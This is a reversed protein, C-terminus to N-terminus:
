LPREPSTSVARYCPTENPVVTKPIPFVSGSFRLGTEVGAM